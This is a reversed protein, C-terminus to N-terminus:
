LTVCLVYKHLQALENTFMWIDIKPCLNADVHERVTRAGWFVPTTQCYATSTSLSSLPYPLHAPIRLTLINDSNMDSTEVNFGTCSHIVTVEGLPWPFCLEAEM